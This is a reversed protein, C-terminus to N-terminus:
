LRVKCTLTSPHPRVEQQRCTRGERGARHGHQPGRPEGGQGSRRRRRAHRGRPALRAVEVRRAPEAGDSSRRAQARRPARGACARTRRTSDLPLRRRREARALRPALGQPRRPRRRTWRGPGPPRRRARPAIGVPALAQARPDVRRLLPREPGPAVPAPRRDVLRRTRSPRAPAAAPPDDPRSATDLALLTAAGGTSSPSPLPTLEASRPTQPLSPAELVCRSWRISSEMWESRAAPSLPSGHQRPGSSGRRRRTPSRRRRAGRECRSPQQVRSERQETPERSRLALRALASPCPRCGGGRKLRLRASLM